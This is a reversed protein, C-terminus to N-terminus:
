AAKKRNKMRKQAIDAYNFDKEIGIYFRGLEQAAVATSGSGAFPDLIIDGHKSYAKIITKLSEVPKQTPHLRNGTYKWSQIDKPPQIPKQPKGKALLYASEHHASAFGKKSSYNKIFVFHSIPQFGVARWTDLFIDAKQWGYFSLCMSNNKLVRYIQRFSPYLWKLTNDGIITRGDRSKYRVGYPPDTVILDVTESPMWRLIDICDGNIIQNIFHIQNVENHKKTIHNTM